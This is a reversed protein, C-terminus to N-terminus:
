RHVIPIRKMDFRIERSSILFLEYLKKNEFGNRLFLLNHLPKHDQIDQNSLLRVKGSKDRCCILYLCYWDYVCFLLPNSTFDETICRRAQQWVRRILTDSQSAFLRNRSRDILAFFEYNDTTVPCALGDIKMKFPIASFHGFLRASGYAKEQVAWVFEATRRLHRQSFDESMESNLSKLVSKSLLCLDQYLHDFLPDPRVQGSYYTLETIKKLDRLTRLYKRGLESKELFSGVLAARSLRLAELTKKINEKRMRRQDSLKKLRELHKLSIMVAKCITDHDSNRVFLVLRLEESLDSVIIEMPSGYESFVNTVQLETSANFPGTVSVTKPIERYSAMLLGFLETSSNISAEENPDPSLVVNNQVSIIGNFSFQTFENSLRQLEVTLGDKERQGGAVPAAPAEFFLSPNKRDVKVKHRVLSTYLRRQEQSDGIMSLFPDFLRKALEIAQQLIHGLVFSPLEGEVIFIHDAHSDFVVTFDAFFPFM